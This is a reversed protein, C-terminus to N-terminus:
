TKVMSVQMVPGPKGELISMEKIYCGYKIPRTGGTGQVFICTSNHETEGVETSFVNSCREKSLQDCLVKHYSRYSKRM